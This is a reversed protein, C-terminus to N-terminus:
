RSGGRMGNTLLLMVLPPPTDRVAFADGDGERPVISMQVGATGSATFGDRAFYLLPLSAAIVFSAALLAASKGGLWELGGARRTAHRSVRAALSEWYADDDPVSFTDFLDAM